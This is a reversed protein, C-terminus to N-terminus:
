VCTADCAPPKPPLREPSIALHILEAIEQRPLRVRPGTLWSPFARPSRSPDPTVAYAPAVYASVRPVTIETLANPGQLSPSVPQREHYDQFDFLQWALLLQPDVDAETTM